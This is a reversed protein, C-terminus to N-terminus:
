HETLTDNPLVVGTLHMAAATSGMGQATRRHGIFSCFSNHLTKKKKNQSKGEHLLCAFVWCGM